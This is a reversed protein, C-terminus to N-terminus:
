PNSALSKDLAEKTILFIRNCAKRLEDSIEALRHKTGADQLLTLWFPPMKDPHSILQGTWPDPTGVVATRIGANWMGITCMPCPELTTYMTLEHPVRQEPSVHRHYRDIADMEAHRVHFMPDEVNGLRNQGRTLVSGNKGVVAGIGYNGVLAAQCAERVAERMFYSDGEPNEMLDMEDEIAEVDGRISEIRAQKQEDTEQAM